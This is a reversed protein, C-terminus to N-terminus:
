PFFGLSRWLDAQFRPDGKANALLAPQRRTTVYGGISEQTGLEIRQLDGLRADSGEDAPPLRVYLVDSGSERLLVAGAQAQGLEVARALLRELMEELSLAQHMEQEIEFLIDLELMKQQLKEQTELLEVNKDVVAQYLKSSEISIAAQQGLTALLAEDES